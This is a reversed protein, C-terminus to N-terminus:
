DERIVLWHVAGMGYDYVVVPRGGDEIELRHDDSEEIAEKDLEFLDNRRLIFKFDSTDMSSILTELEV